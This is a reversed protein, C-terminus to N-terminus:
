PYLLVAVNYSTFPSQKGSVCAGVSAEHYKRTALRSTLEEPLRELSSATYRMVFWPQRSGVFGTALTCTQRADQKAGGLRLGNSELLNGVQAEQQELTLHAVIRAFDEVAYLQGHRQVVAIGVADVNPDLLNHRHGESNMWMQHILASNNAEAVNESVLSFHAGADGARTALEPEGPFQHSISGHAAMEFAHNRAADVLHLDTHVPQLGHAVRDQNAAALLYQESINQARADRGFSMTLFVAAVAAVLSPSLCPRTM